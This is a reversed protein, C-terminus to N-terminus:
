ENLARRLWERSTEVRAGLEKKVIEYNISDELISLYQDWEEIENIMCFHDILENIIRLTEFRDTMNCPFALYKKEFITAFCAGHWSDTVIYEANDFLWLWEPIDLVETIRDTIDWESYDIIGNELKSWDAIITAKTDLVQECYHVFRAHDDDMYLFYVLLKSEGYKEPQKELSRYEEMELLFVPDVVAEADVGFENSLWEVAWEERVSIARYESITDAFIPIREKPFGDRTGLSTGYSIKNMKEFFSLSYVKYTDYDRMMQKNWLIDSGLVATDAIDQMDAVELYRYSLEMNAALFDRNQPPLFSGIYNPIGRGAHSLAVVTKGANKIAKYLAYNTLYNGYNEGWLLVLLVDFHPATESCFTSSYFQDRLKRNYSENKILSDNYANVIENFTSHGIYRFRNLNELVMKKGKDSLPFVVSREMKKNDFAHHHIQGADGILVDGYYNNRFICNYCSRRFITGMCYEYMFSDNSLGKKVIEKGSKCLIYLGFETGLKERNRFDISTIEEDTQEMVHKQLLKTSAVGHCIVDLCFLNDYEKQLFSKLGATQCPTGSFLVKESKNLLDRIKVYTDKVDSQIYKSRRMKEVDSSSNSVIHKVSLNDDWVAGAVYGGSEIWRKALVYFVGGSSSNKQIEYDAALNFSCDGVTFGTNSNSLPCIKKCKGCNNCKSEDVVPYIFGERDYLMSICGSPCINACAGCGTCLDINTTM